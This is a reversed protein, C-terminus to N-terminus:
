ACPQEGLRNVVREFLTPLGVFHYPYFSEKRIEWATWVRRVTAGHAACREDLMTDGVALFQDVDGDALPHNAADGGCLPEV